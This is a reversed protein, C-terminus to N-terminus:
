ITERMEAQTPVDVGCARLAADSLQVPRAAYEARRKELGDLISQAVSQKREPEPYARADEPKPDAAVGRRLAALLADKEALLQAKRDPSVQPAQVEAALIAQLDSKEALPEDMFRQAAQYIEGPTPAWKGDGLRGRRFAKCAESLAFYPLESLDSVYVAMMADAEGDGMGKVSMVAFISAIEAAAMDDGAPAMWADIQRIRSVMDSVLEGRAEATRPSISFRGSGEPRMALKLRPIETRLRANAPVPVPPSYTQSMLENRM